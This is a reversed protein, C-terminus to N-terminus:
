ARGRGARKATVNLDILGAPPDVEILKAAVDVRRCITEALPVLVEGAGEASVVLLPTGTSLEVRDVTGVGAGGVTVVRCGILDHVYYRDAALGHLGDEPVRLELDRLSEADNMSTVGDFRVVWRGDHERSEAVAEEEPEGRRRWFMRAGAHFREAGFDTEPQVVVAGRIGHPRVVRGVLAM